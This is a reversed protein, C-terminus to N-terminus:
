IAGDFMLGGPAQVRFIARLCLTFCLLFPLNVELLLALGISKSVFIERGLYAGGFILGEFLAESFYFGRPKNESNVTIWDLNIHSTVFHCYFVLGSAHLITHKSLPILGQFDLLRLLSVRSQPLPLVPCSLLENWTPVLKILISDTISFISVIWM